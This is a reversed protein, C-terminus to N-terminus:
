KEYYFFRWKEFLNELGSSFHLVKRYLLFTIMKRLSQVRSLTHHVAFVFCM